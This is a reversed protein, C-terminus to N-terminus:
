AGYSYHQETANYKIIRNAEKILIDEGIKVFDLYMSRVQIHLDKNDADKRNEVIRKAVIENTVANM